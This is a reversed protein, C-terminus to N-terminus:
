HNRATEFEAARAANRLAGSTATNIDPQDAAQHRVNQNAQCAAAVFGVSQHPVALAPVDADALGVHEPWFDSAIDPLRSSFQSSTLYPFQFNSSHKSHRFVTSSITTRINYETSFTKFRRM